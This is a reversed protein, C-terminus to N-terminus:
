GVDEFAGLAAGAVEGAHARDHGLQEVDHRRVDRQEPLLVGLLDGHQPPHDFSRSM